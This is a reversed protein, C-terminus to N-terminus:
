SDLSARIGDEANTYQPTVGLTSRMKSTDIRRVDKLFSWRKANFEKEAQRRSIERPPALGVAKAVAKMFATASRHDGDGVNYIGPEAVFTALCCQVLDDVHIRNGPSAESERVCTAELQLRAEGLRDPGYIGPVRLIVYDTQSKRAYQTIASEAAVRRRARDSTPAVTANEDVAKPGSNGYVGTTSIYVFRKPPEPLVGLFRALRSDSTSDKGAPPVTYLVQYSTDPRLPLTSDRDADFRYTLKQGLRGNASRSLGVANDTARLVRSGLYGCGVILTQM